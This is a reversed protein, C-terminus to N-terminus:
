HNNRTGTTFGTVSGGGEFTGYSDTFVLHFSCSVTPHGNNPQAQFESPPETVDSPPSGDSPTFTGTFEGFATPHFVLTSGNDRAPTWDGNGSTTVQYTTNGCTLPFSNKNGQAAAPQALAVVGAAIALVSAGRRM